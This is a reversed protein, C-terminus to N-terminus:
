SWLLWGSVTSLGRPLGLGKRTRQLLTRGLTDRAVPLLVHPWGAIRSSLSAGLRWVGAGNKNM